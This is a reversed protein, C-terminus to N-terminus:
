YLLIIVKIIELIFLGILVCNRILSEKQALADELGKMMHYINTRIVKNYNDTILPLLFM